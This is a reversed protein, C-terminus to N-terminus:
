VKLRFYNATNRVRGRFYKTQSTSGHVNGQLSSSFSTKIQETLLSLSKPQCLCDMCFGLAAHAFQATIVAIATAPCSCSCSLSSRTPCLFLHPSLLSKVGLGWISFGFWPLACFIIPPSPCPSHLLVGRHGLTKWGNRLMLSFVMGQHLFLFEECEKLLLSVSLSAVTKLTIGLPGTLTYKICIKEAM